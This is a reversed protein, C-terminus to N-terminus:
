GPGAIFALTPFLMEQTIPRTVVNNSLKCPFESAIQILEDATFRVAGNKGIFLQKSKM